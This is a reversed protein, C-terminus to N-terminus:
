VLGLWTFQERKDSGWIATRKHTSSVAHSPKSCHQHNTFFLNKTGQYFAPFYPIIGIAIMKHGHFLLCCYCVLFHLAVSHFSHTQDFSCWRCCPRGVLFHACEPTGTLEQDGALWLGAVTILRHPPPLLCLRVLRPHLHRSPLNNQKGVTEGCKLDGSKWRKKGANGKQKGEGREKRSGM